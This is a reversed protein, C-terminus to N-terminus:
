KNTLGYPRSIFLSFEALKKELDEISFKAKTRAKAELAEIKDAGFILVHKRRYKLRNMQEGRNCNHCAGCGNELDWRTADDGRPVIHYAVEIPNKDCIRCRGYLIRDRLRIAYSWFTDLKTRLIQRRTKSSRKKVLPAGVERLGWPLTARKEERKAKRGAALARIRKFESLPVHVM